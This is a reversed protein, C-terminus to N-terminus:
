DENKGKGLWKVGLYVFPTEIISMACKLGWYPLVLGMIFVINQNFPKDLAYFALIMFIATDVFQSIFNSLNTRLWLNQKGMKQRLRYFIAVDLIEAIAFAFLSALSFRISIKFVSEYAAETPSFRSTPPLAVALVSFLILLIIVIIGSRVLSQARDKGRAEVIIDNVAYTIPFLFIAVSGSLLFNGIHLLNFTKGGMLESAVVCFMYIAAILDFKRIKLM